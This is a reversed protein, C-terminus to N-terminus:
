QDVQGARVSVALEFVDKALDVAVTTADMNSRRKTHPESGRRLMTSRSCWSSDMGNGGGCRRDGLRTPVGLGVSVVLPAPTRKMGGISRGLPMDAGGSIAQSWIHVGGWAALSHDPSSTLRRHLWIDPREAHLRLSRAM